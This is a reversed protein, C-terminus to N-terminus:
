LRDTQNPTREPFEMTGKDSNIKIGNSDTQTVIQLTKGCVDCIDGTTLGNSDLKVFEVPTHGYITCVYNNQNVTTM